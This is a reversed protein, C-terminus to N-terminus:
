KPLNRHLGCRDSMGQTFHKPDNVAEIQANCVGGSSLNATCKPQKVHSLWATYQVSSLGAKNAAYETPNSIYKHMDSNPVTLHGVGQHYAVFKMGLSTLHDLMQMGSLQSEKFKQDVFGKYRAEMAKIKNENDQKLGDIHQQAKQLLSRLKDMNQKQVQFLASLETLNKERQLAVSQLADLKEGLKQKVKDAEQLRYKALELEKELFKNHTLLTALRDDGSTKGDTLSTYLTDNKPDNAPAVSEILRVINKNNRVLEAIGEPESSKGNENPEWLFAEYDPDPCQSECVLRIPGAGLDPGKEAVNLLQAFPVNWSIDVAGESDFELYFYVASHIDLDSDVTIFIAKVHQNAFERFCVIGDLVAEFESILMEKVVNQGNFFLVLDVVKDKSM